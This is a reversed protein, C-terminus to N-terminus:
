NYQMKNKLYASKLTTVPILPFTSIEPWLAYLELWVSYSFFIHINYIDTMTQEILDYSSNKTWIQCNLRSLHIFYPYKYELILIGLIEYDILM